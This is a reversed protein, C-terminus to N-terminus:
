HDNDHDRLKLTFMGEIKALRDAMQRIDGHVEQWRMGAVFMSTSVSVLFTIVAIIIEVAYSQHDM